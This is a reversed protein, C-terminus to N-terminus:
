KITSVLKYSATGFECLNTLHETAVNILQLAECVEAPPPTIWENTESLPYLDIAKQRADRLCTIANNIEPVASFLTM